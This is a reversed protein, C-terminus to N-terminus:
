EDSRPLTTAALCLSSQASSRHPFICISDIISERRCDIVDSILKLDIPDFHSLHIFRDAFFSFCFELEKELSNIKARRSTSNLPIAIPLAVREAFCIIICKLPSRSDALSVRKKNCGDCMCVSRRVLTIQVKWGDAMSSRRIILGDDM